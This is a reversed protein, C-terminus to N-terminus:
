ARVYHYFCFSISCVYNSLIIYFLFHQADMTEKYFSLFKEFRIIIKDDNPIKKRMLM